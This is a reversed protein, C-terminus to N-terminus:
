GAPMRADTASPLPQGNAIAEITEQNPWIPLRKVHGVELAELQVGGLRRSISFDESEWYYGGGPKHQPGKTCFPIVTGDSVSCRELNAAVVRLAAVPIVCFGLGVLWTPRGLRDPELGELQAAAIRGGINAYVASAPRGTQRAVEVLQLPVHPEWIMDDDICLIQDVNPHKDCHDLASTFLRNRALAVDSCGLQMLLEQPRLQALCSRCEHDPTGSYSPMLALVNAFSM